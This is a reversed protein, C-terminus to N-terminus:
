SKIGMNHDTCSSGPQEEARGASFLPPPSIRSFFLRGTDFKQEGSVALAVDGVSAGDFVKDGAVSGSAPDNPATQVLVVIERQYLKQMFVSHIGKDSLISLYEGLDM